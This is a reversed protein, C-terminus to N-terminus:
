KRPRFRKKKREKKKRSRFRIKKGKKRLIKRKYIGVEPASVPLPSASIKGGEMM